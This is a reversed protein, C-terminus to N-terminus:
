FRSLVKHIEVMALTDMKCYALLANAKEKKVELNSEKIMSEWEAQAEDGKQVDLDSYSLHPVLVPLVKKISVSGLFEPHVYYNKFILMQDWLREIMSSLQSDYEPFAEKLANLINREFSANYVIISGKPGIHEILALILPKRPDTGDPHLYELHELEGNQSLKHVSYQFPFQEYPKMGEFRPIAPNFTEFDFFYLPYNLQKLEQQIQSSELHVEGTKVAHVYRAQTDTLPFSEPLDKIALCGTELLTEQKTRHLRPITFISKKPVHAWCNSKNPCIVPHTCHYGIPKEPEPNSLVSKCWGLHQEIVQKFPEVVGTVDEIEFLNSLDPYFCDKNNLYMLHVSEVDLGCKEAVLWQLAIDPKHVNEDFKTTSKVEVLQWKNQPTRELIDCRVTVDNYQFEAEFIFPAGSNIAKQTELIAARGSTDILVGESFCMRAYEGVLVGQDIMRQQSSSLEELAEPKHHEIWLRKECQLGSLVLSKTLQPITKEM